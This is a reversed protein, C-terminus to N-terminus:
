ELKKWDVKLLGERDARGATTGAKVQRPEPEPGDEAERFGGM